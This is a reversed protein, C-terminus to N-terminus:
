IAKVGKEQLWNRFVLPMGSHTTAKVSKDMIEYLVSNFNGMLIISGEGTQEIRQLLSIFCKKGM